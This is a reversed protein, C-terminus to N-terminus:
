IVFSNIANKINISEQARFANEQQLQLIGRKLEDIEFRLNILKEDWHTGENMSSSNIHYGMTNLVNEFVENLKIVTEPRLKERFSGSTGSRNFVYEDESVRSFAAEIITQTMANASPKISLDNLILKIWKIPDTYIDEYRYSYTLKNRSLLSIYKEYRKLLENSYELVYTDIDPLQTGVKMESLTKGEEFHTHINSFAYYRSVLIDRPDRFIFISRLESLKDDSLNQPINRFPGVFCGESKIANFVDAPVKELPIGSNYAEGGIDLLEMGCSDLLIQLLRCTISSGGREFGFFIISKSNM